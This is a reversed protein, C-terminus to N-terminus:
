QFYSTCFGRVKARFERRSDMNQRTVEDSTHQIQEALNQYRIVEALINQFSYPQSLFSSVDREAQGSVLMSYKDYDKLCERPKVYETSVLKRVEEMQAQVLDPQIIPKLKKECNPGTQSFTIYLHLFFFFLSM